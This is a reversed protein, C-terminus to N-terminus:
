HRALLYVVLLVVAAAVGALIARTSIASTPLEVPMSDTMSRSFAPTMSPAAIASAIGQEQIPRLPALASVRAREGRAAEIAAQVGKPADVITDHREPLPDGTPSPVMGGQSPSPSSVHVDMAVHKSFVATSDGDDDGSARGAVWAATQISAREIVTTLSQTHMMDA